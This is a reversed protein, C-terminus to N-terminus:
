EYSEGQPRSAGDTLRLVIVMLLKSLFTDKELGGPWSIIDSSFFWQLVTGGPTRKRRSM